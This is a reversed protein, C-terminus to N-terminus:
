KSGLQRLALGLANNIYKDDFVKKNYNIRQFINMDNVPVSNYTSLLQKFKPLKSGGGTVYIRAIPTDDNYTYFYDVEEKLRVSFDKMVLNIINEFEAPFSSQLNNRVKHSDAEEFTIGLKDSIAESFHRGGFGFEKAHLSQGERIIVMNTSVNGVNLLIINKSEKKLYNHNFLNLLAFCDIDIIKPILGIESLIESYMKVASRKAAVLMVDMHGPRSQLAIKNYDIHVDHLIDQPLYQEAEWIIHEDLESDSMEPVMIRRVIVANNSLSITVHKVNTQVTRLTDKLASLLGQKDRINGDIITNPPLPAIAIATLEPKKVSGELAVLKVFSSGIDLGLATKKGLGFM